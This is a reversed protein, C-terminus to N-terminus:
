GVEPATAILRRREGLMARLADSGAVAVRVRTEEPLAYRQLNQTWTKRRQQRDAADLAVLRPKPPQAEPLDVEVHLTAQAFRAAFVQRATAPLFLSDQVSHPGPEAETPKIAAPVDPLSRVHALRERLRSAPCSPVAFEAHKPSQSRLSQFCGARASCDQCGGSPRRFIIGTRAEAHEAPRVSTLTLPRQEECLLEGTAPDMRWGPRNDLLAAWDLGGLEAEIVPDRPWGAPISDDVPAYRLPQDSREVPTPDEKFGEAM